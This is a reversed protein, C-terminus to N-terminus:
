RWFAMWESVRALLKGLIVPLGWEFFFADALFISIIIIAFALATQNNM